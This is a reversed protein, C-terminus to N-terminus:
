KKFRRAGALGVLGLSFLLMTVPEPVAASVPTGEVSFAMQGLLGTGPYWIGSAISGNYLQPTINSDGEWWVITTQYAPSFVFWYNTNASLFPHSSSDASYISPASSLNTFSFSELIVNPQTVGSALYITLSNAAGASYSAAFRIKDLTADFTPTFRAALDAQAQGIGFPGPGWGVAYGSSTYTDGPGFSSYIVDAGVHHPISFLVACVTTLALLVICHRNKM